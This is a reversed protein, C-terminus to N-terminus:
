MGSALQELEENGPYDEQLTEILRKPTILGGGGNSLERIAAFWAGKGSGSLDLTSMDGGAREWISRDAPGKPYLRVTLKYLADWKSFPPKDLLLYLLEIAFAAAHLSARGQLGTADADSKGALLDSIGRIDLGKVGENRKVATFFGFGEMEFAVADSMYATVNKYIESKLSTVLKESSVIPEIFVDPAVKATSGDAYEIRATWEGKRKALRALHILSSSAEGFDFRPKYPEDAKGPEYYYVKTSAVVDGLKVDKIGGAVGVFFAYTPHFFAIARECEQAAGVNGMGIQVLAVKFTEGNSCIIGVDYVTGEPHKIVQPSNLQGYIAAHEVGLATLIVVDAKEAV